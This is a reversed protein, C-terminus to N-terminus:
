RCTLRKAPRSGCDSCLTRLRRRRVRSPRSFAGAPVFVGYDFEALGDCDLALIANRCFRCCPGPEHVLVQDPADPFSRMATAFITAQWGRNIRHRKMDIVNNGPLMATYSSEFIESQGAKVAVPVFTRVNSSSIRSRPFEHPEKM